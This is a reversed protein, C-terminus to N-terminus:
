EELDCRADLSFPADGEDLPREQDDVQEVTGAARIRSGRVGASTVEGPPPGTMGRREWSEPGFAAFAIGADTTTLGTSGPVGTTGDDEVGVVAQLVAGDDTRGVLFVTEGDLGCSDLRYSVTRDHLELRATRDEFEDGSCGVVATAATLGLVPIRVRRRRAPPTALPTRDTM